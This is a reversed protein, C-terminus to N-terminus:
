SKCFSAIFFKRAVALLADSQREDALVRSATLVGSMSSLLLAAAQRRAGADKGEVLPVLKALMQAGLRDFDRRQTRSGRAVEGGLGAMMCGSGPHDRHKASLYTQIFVRLRSGPPANAMPEFLWSTSLAQLAAARFLENKNRFHFYFGGQTLGARKMVERVGTGALGRERFAAAAAGM